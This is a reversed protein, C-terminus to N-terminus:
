SSGVILQTAAAESQEDGPRGAGDRRGRFPLRAAPRDWSKELDNFRVVGGLHTCIASLTCTEGAVTSIAVPEGRVAGVVGTGEAPNREQDQLPHLEANSGVRRHGRGRHGRQDALVRRRKRAQEGPDGADTGLAARTEPNEGSIRLAAAAVANTM